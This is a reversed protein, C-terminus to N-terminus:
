KSSLTNRKEFIVYIPETSRLVLDAAIRLDWPRTVPYIEFRRLIASIASKMEMMAFKQGICNRPGASFPIYAYPHRGICNEPLFRDPDFKLPDPFLEERRHLDYIHIHCFVDSPIKYGGLDTSETLQRSIFPVPPYLRLSEKICCELYRMKSLDDYSASIDSNGFITFLEEFIKDQIDKHNALLMLCYMLGCATTDHGEFMFTDVEEQIGQDDILNVKQAQILLDLMATRKRKNNMNYENNDMDDLNEAGYQEINAKRDKIVKKTFNQVIQISKIQERGFASLNFILDSFLMIRTVRQVLGKGISHIAAKYSEGKDAMEESFRTGMATECISNLTFESMLPVVDVKEGASNNLMEVMRRSNEEIIVCFRQLINFHFTPTLIKRRQQWKAGDSLLLGDQLWPRMFSYLISKSNFKSTSIIKEVHEPTFVNVAGLNFAWFRYIIKWKNAAKRTLGFIEVPTALFELANGILFINDPGPISRVLRAKEHCNFLVHLFVLFCVTSILIIFLM